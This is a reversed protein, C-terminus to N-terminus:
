GNKQTKFIFYFGVGLGLFILGAIAQSPKEILTNIVIFASMLMFILPTIPYLPTRYNSQLGKKRFIFITYATLFFFATDVFVVYTILNNFTKWFILLLITWSSQFIIAWHPTKFKPHIEAFKKFFIGDEAMAFYIRPATLIYIGITGLVSLVILFAIFKAGFGWITSVADAAVSKSNIINQIPLLKLYSLNITLYAACVVFIGLIMAKPVIKQANQVEAAIFTAHQYGGYSFTVGILALGFSPILTDTSAHNWTFNFTNTDNIGYLVGLIVVILIGLLKASTFISAFISGLKVGLVNMITLLVIATIAITLQLDESIPILSSLYSVFVLSLAALSGTNIVLLMSWGYLFAPLDGFAEKLFAYFGGARPFISSIEAFTLAGCLAVFGGAVWVALMWGESPLYGAIETPTRFIGSGISSGIAIMTLSFLTIGKNLKDSM